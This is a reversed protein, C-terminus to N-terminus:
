DWIVEAPYGTKGMVARTALIEMRRVYVRMMHMMPDGFIVARLMEDTAVEARVDEERGDFGRRLVVVKGANSLPAIPVRWVPAQVVENGSSSRGGGGIGLFKPSSKLATLDPKLRTVM